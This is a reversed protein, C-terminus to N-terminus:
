NGSAFLNILDIKRHRTATKHHSILFSGFFQQTENSELYMCHLSSREFEVERVWQFILFWLSFQLM